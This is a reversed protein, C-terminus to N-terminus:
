SVVGPHGGAFMTPLVIRMYWSGSSSSSSCPEVCTSKVMFRSKM